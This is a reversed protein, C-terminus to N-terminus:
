SKKSACKWGLEQARKRWEEMGHSCATVVVNTDWMTEVHQWPCQSRVANVTRRVEDPGTASEAVFTQRFLFGLRLLAEEHAQIKRNLNAINVPRGTVQMWVKEVGSLGQLAYDAKQNKLAQLRWKHYERRVPPLSGLVVLIVTVSVAWLWFRKRFLRM